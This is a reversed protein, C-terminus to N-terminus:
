THQSFHQKYHHVLLSNGGKSQLQIADKFENAKLCVGLNAQNATFSNALSKM